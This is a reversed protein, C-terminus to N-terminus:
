TVSVGELTEKKLNRFGNAALAYSGAADRSWQEHSAKRKVMADADSTSGTAERLPDYRSPWTASSAGLHGNAVATDLDAKWEADISRSAERADERTAAPAAQIRWEIAKSAVRAVAAYREVTRAQYRGQLAEQFHKTSIVDCRQLLFFLVKRSLTRTGSDRETRLALVGSLIDDLWPFASCAEAATFYGALFGATAQNDHTLPPRM